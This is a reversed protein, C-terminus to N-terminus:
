GDPLSRDYSLFGAAAYLDLWGDADLDFMAPAYAWGVANVDLDDSLERFGEGGPDRRYLRNGALSGRILDYIGPLYDDEGVHAVIRRGMKSYMNAVYLESAGDNDLDGATVGMSTAFDSTRSARSANEFTGDGKNRLLVNPGFDNALYLDPFRDDDLFFTAAAFTQHPGGGAGSELTVDRFRGGGENHWLHNQAGADPDGVWPRKSRPSNQKFGRQYFIYLDLRGDADFDAVAAGFPSRDFALGSRGSVDAFGKGRENRYLKEGLLLDPYGDNDFDIWAALARVYREGEPDDHPLGVRTTVDVFRRGGESRLLFPRGDTSAVVIDPYGDRDFDEVALQYRHNRTLEPELKWNDPLPLEALGVQATIEELLLGPARREIEKVVEARALIGKGDRVDDTSELVAEVVHHSQHERLLGDKGTGTGSLRITVRYRDPGTDIRDIFLVKLKPRDVRTWGAFYGVLHEVYAAADVGRGGGGDCVHVDEVVGRARRTRTDTEAPLRGRFGERFRALATARDGQVLAQMFPRGLHTELVFSIHELDWIYKAKEPDLQTSPLKAASDQAPRAEANASQQASVVTVSAACLVALLPFGRM